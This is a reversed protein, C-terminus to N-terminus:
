SRLSKLWKLNEQFAEQLEPIAPIRASQLKQDLNGLHVDEQRLLFQIDNRDQPDVRMMKTLILDATCPRYLRLHSLPFDILQIDSLWDPSLIVQDDGFLHTMYLGKGDLAQNTLELADWFDDNKELQPMEVVPLIADVDMTAGFELPSPEYGLVLAARGYLILQLESHLHKDLTKLIIEPNNM